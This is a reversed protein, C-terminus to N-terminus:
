PTLIATDAVIPSGHRWASGCSRCVVAGDVESPTMDLMDGCSPCRAEVLRGLALSRKWRAEGSRVRWAIVPISAPVAFIPTIIFMRFFAASFSPVPYALAVLAAFGATGGLLTGVVVVDGWWFRRRVSRRLRYADPSNLDALLRVDRERADSITWRTGKDRDDRWAPTAIVPWDRRWLDPIWVAACEPCRVLGAGDGPVDALEYGCCPCTQEVLSRIISEYEHEGRASRRRARRNLRLLRLRRYVVTIFQAILYLTGLNYLASRGQRSTWFYEAAILLLFVVFLPTLRRRWRSLWDTKVVAAERQRRSMLPPHRASDRVPRLAGTDDHLLLGTWQNLGFWALPDRAVLFQRVSFM